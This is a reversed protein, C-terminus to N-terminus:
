YKKVVMIVVCYLLSSLLILMSHFIQTEVTIQELTVDIDIISTKLFQNQM